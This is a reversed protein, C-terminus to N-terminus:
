VSRLAIKQKKLITLGPPLEGMNHLELCAKSSLRNQLLYLANHTMVYENFTEQNEIIPIDQETLTASGLTTKTGISEEQNLKAILTEELTKYLEELEQVQKTLKQKNERIGLLNNTIQSTTMNPLAELIRDKLM